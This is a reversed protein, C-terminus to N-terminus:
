YNSDVVILTEEVRGIWSSLVMLGGENKGDKQGGDWNSLNGEGFGTGQEEVGECQM